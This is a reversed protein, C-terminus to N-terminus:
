CPLPYSGRLSRAGPNSAILAVTLSFISIKPETPFAQTNGSPYQLLDSYLYFFFVSVCRRKRKKPYLRIFTESFPPHWTFNDKSPM